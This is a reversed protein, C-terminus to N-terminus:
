PKRCPIKIYLAFTSLSAYIVVCIVSLNFDSGAMIFFSFCLFTVASAIDLAKHIYFARDIDFRDYIILRLAKGGDFFSLPILNFVGLFTNCLMFFLLHVSPYFYLALCSTAALFANALCGALTCILEKKYSLRSTDACIDVGFPYLTVSRIKAGYRHLFLLHSAEHLLASTLFLLSYAFGQGSFFFLLAFFSFISIHLKESVRIMGFSNM